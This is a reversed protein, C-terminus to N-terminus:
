TRCIICTWETYHIVFSHRTPPLHLSECISWKVWLCPFLLWEGSELASIGRCAQHLAVFSMLTFRLTPSVPPSPFFFAIFLLTEWCCICFLIWHVSAPPSISSCCLGISSFITFTPSHSHHAFRTQLQVINRQEHPSNFPYSYWAIAYWKVCVYLVFLLVKDESSSTASICLLLLFAFHPSWIEWFQHRTGICWVHNRVCVCARRERSIEGVLQIRELVDFITHVWCLVTLATTSPPRSNSIREDVPLPVGSSTKTTTQAETFDTASSPQCGMNRLPLRQFRHTDRECGWTM